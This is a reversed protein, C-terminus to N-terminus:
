TGQALGEVVEFWHEVHRGDIFLLTALYRLPVDPLDHGTTHVLFPRPETERGPNALVWLTKRAKAPQWKLALIEAGKPLQLTFIRGGESVARSEGSEVNYALVRRPMAM